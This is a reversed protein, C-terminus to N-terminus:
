FHSQTPHIISFHSLQVSTCLLKLPAAGKMVDMFSHFNERCITSIPIWFHYFNCWIIVALLCEPSFLKQAMLSGIHCLSLWLIAIGQNKAQKTVRRATVVVTISVKIIPRLWHLSEHCMYPTPILGNKGERLVQIHCSHDFKHSNSCKQIQVNSYQFKQVNPSKFM